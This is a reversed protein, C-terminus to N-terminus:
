GKVEDPNSVLADRKLENIRLTMIDRAWDLNVNKQKIRVLGVMIQELFELEEKKYEKRTEEIIFDIIKNHADTTDKSKLFFDNWERLVKERVKNAM